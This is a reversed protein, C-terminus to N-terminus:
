AREALTVIASMQYGGNETTIPTKFPIGGDVRFTWKYAQIDRDFFIHTSVSEKIGASKVISYYYSLDAFIIDGEDGLAAMSGIMPMVPRGLLQGYPTPNMQSGPSLYIFNGVDDKMLRLQEEAGANIYWVAKARASPIMHSYMKLINKAVITDAAQGVEKAVTVKFGSQLIGKPKGIGDGSLIANNLKWMMAEPAKQKMYSELGVSDELLEETVKVMAALKHLRFTATGLKFKSDTISGGEETWYAQVGGNWPAQEDIPLSLNNGAVTIKSTKAILSEDSQFKKEISTLFTEPVLIGGDEGNKEFMTNNFRPDVRGSAQNKVAKLFEGMNNFGGNLDKASPVIEIRNENAGSAKRPAPETAKATMAQIREATSIQSELNQFEAHLDNVTKTDEETFNEVSEYKKLTAMIAAVRNKMELIKEM